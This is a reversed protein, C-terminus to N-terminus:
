RNLRDILSARLQRARTDDLPGLLGRAAEPLHAGARECPGFVYYDFVERWAQKEREPRDRIAWLALHLAHMPSPMWAPAGTWWYNVLVNFPALAEVHHWWMSPIFLADGPELEASRATALAERFRPFREFDPQAFDVVSVAQGGPTPDLPGPYLNGIQDPPFLTFRRRGVACCAINNPADYHCSATVRNGIWISPPAEVGHAAFDLDNDTRLGPMCADVRQSAVYFTPPAADDLHGAIEDLVQDLRARRVECNLATFGARYFPRGAVERDGHSYQVPRETAHAKLYDMAAQVGGRGAAVLPWHAAVGRLVVPEGADLLAGLPM